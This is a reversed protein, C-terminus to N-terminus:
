YALTLVLSALGVAGALVRPVVMGQGGISTVITSLPTTSSSTRTAAFSATGNSAGSGVGSTGLVPGVSLTSASRSSSGTVGDVDAAAISDRNISECSTTPTSSSSGTVGDVDATAIPHHSATTDSVVFGTTSVTLTNTTATSVDAGSFGPAESTEITITRSSPGQPIFISIRTTLTTSTTGSITTIELSCKPRSVTVTHTVTVTTPKTLTISDTVTIPEISYPTETYVPSDTSAGVITDTMDGYGYGLPTGALIPNTVFFVLALSKTSFM